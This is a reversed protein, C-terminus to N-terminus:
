RKTSFEVFEADLLGTFQHRLGPPIHFADGPMLVIECATDHWMKDQEVEVDETSYETSYLLHLKGSIVFFTKDEEFHQWNNQKGKKVFLMKGSNCIRNEWGWNKSIFEPDIFYKAAERISRQMKEKEKKIREDM